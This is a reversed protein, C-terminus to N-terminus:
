REITVMSKGPQVAAFVWAVDENLMRICGLSESKGISQPEITGHIGFGKKAVAEDSVGELAIWYEGLPNSPDDAAIVRKDPASESPYYTPNPQRDRVRWEGTPTGDNKGLGISFSRVFVDQLYLDLRYQSKSIRAHFPGLPIKLKQGLRLKSADSIGNIRLIIDYPINYRRAVNALKDGSQVTYIEVLPDGAVPQVSFLTVDAIRTLLARAAAAEGQNKDRKLIAMAATRAEILKGADVLKRAAELEASANAAASAPSQTQNAPAPPSQAVPQPAAKPPTTEGSTPAPPQEPRLKTIPEDAAAMTGAAFFIVGAFLRTGCVGLRGITFM